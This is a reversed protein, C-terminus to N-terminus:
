FTADVAFASRTLIGRCLLRGRLEAPLFVITGCFLLFAAEGLGRTSVLPKLGLFRDGPEITVVGLQKAVDVRGRPLSWAAVGAADLPVDFTQKFEPVVPAYAIGRSQLGM